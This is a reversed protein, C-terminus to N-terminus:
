KKLFFRFIAFSSCKKKPTAAIAAAAGASKAHGEESENWSVKTSNLPGHHTSLSIQEEVANIGAGLDDKKYGLPDLWQRMQPYQNEFATTSATASVTLSEQSPVIPLRSPNFTPTLSSASAPIPGTLTGADSVAPLSLVSHSPVFTTPHHTLTYLHIDEEIEDEYNNDDDDIDVNDNKDNDDNYNDNFDHRSYTNSNQPRHIDNSHRFPYKIIPKSIDHAAATVTQPQILNCNQQITTYSEPTIAAMSAVSTSSSSPTPSRTFIRKAFASLRKKSRSTTSSRPLSVSATTTTPTTTTSDDSMFRDDNKSSYSISSEDIRNNAISSSSFHDDFSIVHSRASNRRGLQYYRLHDIQLPDIPTTTRSANGGSIGNNSGCSYEANGEVDIDENVGDTCHHISPSAPIPGLIPGIGFTSIKHAKAIPAQASPTSPLSDLPHMPRALPFYYPETTKRVTTEELNTM